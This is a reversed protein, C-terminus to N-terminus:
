QLQRELAVPLAEADLVGLHRPRVLADRADVQPLAVQLQGHVLVVLRHADARLQLVDRVALLHAGRGACEGMPRGDGSRTARSARSLHPPPTPSARSLHPLPTPSTCSRHPLLHSLPALSLHPLPAPTHSRHPASERAEGGGGGSSM